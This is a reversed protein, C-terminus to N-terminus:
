PYLLLKGAIIVCIIVVVPRILNAGFKLAAIAGLKAGILQGLIMSFGIVWIIEGSFLFIALAGANSAVNLMKSRANATVMDLGVLAVHCFLYFSGGGPGFFGDYFAIPMVWLFPAIQKIPRPKPAILFYIAVVILIIPMLKKLFGTPVYQVTIAGVMSAIMAYAIMPIMPKLNILGKKYFHLTSFAIGFTAQLKNTAVAQVPSLGAMLLAPMIILGGGGAVADVFSAAIAALILLAILETTITV